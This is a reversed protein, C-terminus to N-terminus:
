FDQEQDRAGNVAWRLDQYLRSRRGVTRMRVTRCRIVDSYATGVSSAAKDGSSPADCLHRFDGISVFKTSVSSSYAGREMLFVISVERAKIPIEYRNCKVSKAGRARASRKYKVKESTM